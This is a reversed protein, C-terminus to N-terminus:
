DVGIVETTLLLLPDCFRVDLLTKWEGFTLLFPVPMREAQSM